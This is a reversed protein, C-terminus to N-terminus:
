RYVGVSVGAGGHSVKTRGSENETQEMKFRLFFEMESVVLQGSERYIEDSAVTMQVGKDESGNGSIEGLEVLGVGATGIAVSV